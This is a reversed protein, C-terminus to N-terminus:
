YADFSSSSQPLRVEAAVSPKPDQFKTATVFGATLSVLKNLAGRRGINEPLQPLWAEASPAQRLSLLLAVTVFTFFVPYSSMKTSPLHIMIKKRRISSREHPERSKKEAIQFYNYCRCVVPNLRRKINQNAM